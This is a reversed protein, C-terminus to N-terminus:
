PLELVSDSQLTRHLDTTLRQLWLLRLVAPKIQDPRMHGALRHALTGITDGPVFAALATDADQPAVVGPRRAAALFSVNGLHIPDAGTWIEYRWGHEQFLAGPWALAKSIKPDALRCAPKVNVIRVTNDTHTLLFDPVHRRTADDVTAQLLFPQAAIACVCPDFDALLLRALELRSEYIVFSGTTAAWYLGSYHHQGRHNRMTRWPAGALVHDASLRTLARRIEKGDRTRLWTTPGAARPTIGKLGGRRSCSTPRDKALRPM